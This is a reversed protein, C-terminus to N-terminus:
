EKEKMFIGEVFLKNMRENIMDNERFVNILRTKIEDM